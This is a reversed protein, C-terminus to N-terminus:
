SYLSQRHGCGLRDGGDRELGRARTRRCFRVRHTYANLNTANITQINEDERAARAADRVPMPGFKKALNVPLWRLTEFLDRCDERTIEGIPKEAGLVDEIVRRTTHHALMTRDSRRKTPDQLFREYVESLAPGSTLPFASVSRPPMTSVVTASDLSGVLLRVDYALGMERWMLEFMAEVDSAVKRSLRVALSPSDTRLSRKVHSRGIVARLDVPVRVRFQYVSGRLSLGSTSRKHDLGTVWQQPRNEARNSLTVPDNSGGNHGVETVRACSDSQELASKQTNELHQPPNSRYRSGRM